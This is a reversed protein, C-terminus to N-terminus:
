NIITPNLIKDIRIESITVQKAVLVNLSDSTQIM